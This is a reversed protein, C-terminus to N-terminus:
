ILVLIISCHEVPLWALVLGISQLYTLLKTQKKIHQNQDANKQVFPIHLEFFMYIYIYM